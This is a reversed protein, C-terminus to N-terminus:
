TACAPPRRRARWRRPRRSNASPSFHEWFNTVCYAADAGALAAGLSAPDDADARRVEIGLAALARAKDSDPNRTIARARFRRAPDAAIARALGGGQAGTAGFIAVTATTM